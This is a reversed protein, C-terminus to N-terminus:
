NKALMEATCIIIVLGIFFVKIFIYLLFTSEFHSKIVYINEMEVSIMKSFIEMGERM